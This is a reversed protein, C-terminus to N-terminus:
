TLLKESIFYKEDVNEELLDKLKLTLPVKSPFTYDADEDRISLMFVRERNQPINYDKSNLVEYFNKYGLEELSECWEM